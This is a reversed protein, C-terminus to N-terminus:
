SLYVIYRAFTETAELHWGWANWATKKGRGLFQSVTDCGTLAYWFLLARCVEEGVEHAYTHIPLWRKYKRAGFEIWLEEVDLDWLVYMAIVDTDVSVLMLKKSGLRILEKAHIFMRDDAKEKECPQLYQKEINHNSVVNQLRTSVITKSSHIGAYKM